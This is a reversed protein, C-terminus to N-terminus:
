CTWQGHSQMAIQGTRRQSQSTFSAGGNTEITEFNVILFRLLHPRVLYFNIARTFSCVCPIVKAKDKDSQIM